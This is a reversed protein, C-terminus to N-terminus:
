KVFWFTSLLINEQQECNSEKVFIQVVGEENKERFMLEVRMRSGWRNIIHDVGKGSSDLIVTEFGHCNKHVDSNFTLKIKLVKYGLHIEPVDEIVIDNKSIM